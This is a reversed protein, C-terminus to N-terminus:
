ACTSALSGSGSTGKQAHAHTRTHARELRLRWDGRHAYKPPPYLAFLLCTYRGTGCRLSILICPCRMSPSSLLFFSSHSRVKARSQILPSYLVFRCQACVGADPQSVSQSASLPSRQYCLRRPKSELFGLSRGLDRTAADLRSRLRAYSASLACNNRILALAPGSEGLDTQLCKCRRLVRSCITSCGRRGQFGWKLFTSTM